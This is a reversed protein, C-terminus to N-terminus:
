FTLGLRVSYIRPRPWINNDIGINKAADTSVPIEPDLGSYNTIVFVNQATFAMRLALKTKAINKFTYGLTIDDMRFFSADELFLDTFSQGTDNKLKFGSKEVTNSLNVLFGQGIFDGVPTSNGAYYANFVYNGFSAHANFGLDWNKYNIKSNLGFFVDPTPKKGSIYRDAPTIQGDKNRDVFANQIPMGDSGYAQQYTYFVFPTYGVKLLQINGGTGIGTGGKEVFYDSDDGMALKTVKTDQWTINFGVNWDLDKQQVVVAGINLELGKNEMNGVNTTVVNSFNSGMPTTVTNLLDSTKRFYFDLSGNIRGKLFGYDIGANCTTETTEWMIREDYALPKLVSYYQGDFYYNTYPNTSLTYRALYPYDDLGLDQQGTKGWGLRLKLNSLANNEKLFDEESLTWALAASPFFGWRNDKSFRSSADNRLTVTALYKGAYSYNIRGFFSLLYNETAYKPADNFVANTQNLYDIGDNSIYFHQWSHGAMADLRHEGFDKTYALYLEMLKNSRMKKEEHHKGIGPNDSDKMAQISGPHDGNKEKAIAEDLGLNLNFRLEPLFHFKYDVAVNGLWRYADSSSYHDYLTAMPNVTALTNPNGGSNIWSFWGNAITTNVSGDTNRFHLDQTPDFFAAAGVAGGEAYTNDNYIGKANITLTLHDDLFSPSLNVSGTTTKMNATKLTGDESAYGLSVRYPMKMGESTFNGSASVNHETAFASRFILDQWDTNANGILGRLNDGNTTGAPYFGLMFNRYKEPSMTPIRKSNQSISYSSNYALTVGKGTGKKTTIIIVGNSARSGYIATASADKLVSFSEIDNPNILSLANAMGPSADNSVPVGDIVILPDNSANLSAGGRVRITSGSGPGGDGPLIFVGPVKGMLMEQASTIAGRNIQDARVATVSGTLDTKRVTGYGIVVLEELLQADEKMVINFASTGTVPIEQTAYGIYSIVLVANEAVTLRFNGDFDTATGKTTGKEVISAGIVAEGNVDKVQGEITRQAYSASCYMIFSLIFFICKKKSKM